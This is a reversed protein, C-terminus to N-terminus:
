GINKTSLNSIVDRIFKFLRSDKIGQVEGVSGNLDSIISQFTKFATSM